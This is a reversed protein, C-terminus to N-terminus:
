SGKTSLKDLVQACNMMLLRMEGVRADRIGEYEEGFEGSLFAAEFAKAKVMLPGVFQTMIQKTFEAVELNEAITPNHLLLFLLNLAALFFAMNNQLRLYEEETHSSPTVAPWLWPALLQLLAPSSFLDRAGKEATKTVANASLIETKLWGIASGKLSEYPCHELTDRIYALKVENSPHLHLLTSALQHAQYRQSPSPLNASLLSLRQLAINFEEDSSPAISPNIHLIYLGLFFLADLLAFPEAALSPDSPSPILINVFSTYDPLDGLHPPSNHFLVPSSITSCLIYLAGTRSLPVDSPSSPLESEEEKGEERDADPAKM